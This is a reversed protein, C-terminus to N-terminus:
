SIEGGAGGGVGAGRGGDIAGRGHRGRGSSSRGRGRGLRRLPAHRRRARLEARREHQPQRVLRRRHLHALLKTDRLRQPVLGGGGEALVVGDVLCGDDARAVAELDVQYVAAVSHLGLGLGVELGLELM